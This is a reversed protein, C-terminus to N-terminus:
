TNSDGGWNSTESTGTGSGTNGLGAGGDEM